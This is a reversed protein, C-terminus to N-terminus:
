AGLELSVRRGLHLVTGPVDIVREGGRVPRHVIRDIAVPDGIVRLIEVEALGSAPAWELWAWFRPFFLPCRLAAADGTTRPSLYLTRRPVDLAAGTFANLASWAVPHTMYISEGTGRLGASWANGDHWIRDYVLRMAARGDDVQGLYIQEM